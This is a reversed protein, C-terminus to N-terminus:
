KKKLLSKSLEEFNEYGMSELAEMLTPVKKKFGGFLNSANDISSLTTEEEFDNSSFRESSFSLSSSFVNEIPTACSSSSRETVDFTNSKNVIM